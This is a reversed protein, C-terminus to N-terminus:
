VVKGFNAAVFNVKGRELFSQNSAEAMSYELSVKGETFQFFQETRPNLTKPNYQKM